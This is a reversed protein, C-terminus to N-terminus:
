FADSFFWKSAMMIALMLGVVAAIIIALVIVSGIGLFLNWLIKEGISRGM